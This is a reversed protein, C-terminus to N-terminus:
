VCEEYVKTRTAPSLKVHDSPAGTLEMTERLKSWAARGQLEHKNSRTSGAHRYSAPMGGLLEALKGQHKFIFTHSGNHAKTGDCWTRSLM